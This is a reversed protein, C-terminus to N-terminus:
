ANACVARDEPVRAALPGDTLEKVITFRTRGSPELPESETLGTLCAGDPLEHPLLQEFSSGCDGPRGESESRRRRAAHEARQRGAGAREGPSLHGPSGGAGARPRGAGVATRKRSDVGRAAM